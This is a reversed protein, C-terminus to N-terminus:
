RAVNVADCEESRTLPTDCLLVQSLRGFIREQWDLETFVPLNSNFAARFSICQQRRFQHLSKSGSYVGFTVITVLIQPWRSMWVTILPHQKALNAKWYTEERRKTGEEIAHVRLASAPNSESGMRISRQIILHPTKKMPGSLAIIRESSLGAKLYTPPAEPTMASIQFPIPIRYIQVKLTM